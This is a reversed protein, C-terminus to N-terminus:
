LQSGVAKYAKLISQERGVMSGGCRRSWNKM